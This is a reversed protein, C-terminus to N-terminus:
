VKQRRRSPRWDYGRSGTAGTKAASRGSARHHHRLEWTAANSMIAGEPVPRRNRRLAVPHDRTQPRARDAHHAPNAAVARTDPGCVLALAPKGASIKEGSGPSRSSCADRGATAPRPSEKVARPQAATTPARRRGLYSGLQRRNGFTRAFVKRALIAAGAGGIGQLSILM